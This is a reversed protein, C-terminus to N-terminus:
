GSIDKMFVNEYFKFFMQILSNSDIQNLVGAQEKVVFRLFSMSSQIYVGGLEHHLFSNLKM